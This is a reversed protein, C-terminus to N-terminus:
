PIPRVKVRENQSDLNILTKPYDPSDSSVLLLPIPTLWLSSIKLDEPDVAWKSGDSLLLQNGAQINVSLLLTSQKTPTQVAVLNKTIWANMAKKESKSLSKYGTEKQEKPSMMSDLDIAMCYTTLLTFLPLLFKTKM